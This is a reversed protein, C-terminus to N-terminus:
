NKTKKKHPLARPKHFRLDGSQVYGMVTFARSDLWQVVTPSRGLARTTEVKRNNNIISSHISMYLHKPLYM